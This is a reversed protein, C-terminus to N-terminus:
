HNSPTKLGRFGGSVYFVNIYGDAQLEQSVKISDKGSDCIIVIPAEKSLSQFKENSQYDHTTTKLIQTKLFNLYYPNLHEFPTILDSEQTLDMLTFPVRQLILNEIQYIGIQNIAEM